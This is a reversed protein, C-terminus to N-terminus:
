SLMAYPAAHMCQLFRFVSHQQAGLHLRNPSWTTVEIRPVCCGRFYRVSINSLHLSITLVPPSYMMGKSSWATIRARHFLIRSFSDCLRASSLLDLLRRLLELMAEVALDADELFDRLVEAVDCFRPLFDARVALREAM